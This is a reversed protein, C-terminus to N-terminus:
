FKSVYCIALNENGRESEVMLEIYETTNMPNENLATEKLRNNCETEKDLLLTIIIEREKVSETMKKCFKQKYVLSSKPRKYLKLKESYM